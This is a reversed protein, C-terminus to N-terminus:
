QIVIKSHVVSKADKVEVVFMGKYPLYIQEEGQITKEYVVVGNITMIRVTSITKNSLHITFAGNSSPNPYVKVWDKGIEDEIGTILTAQFSYGTDKQLNSISIFAPSFSYNKLVPTITGSWGAIESASYFGNSDTSVPQTFGNMSVGSVGNGLSDTVTGSVVYGNGLVQYKIYFAKIMFHNTMEFASVQVSDLFVTTTSVPAVQLKGNEISAHLTPPVVGLEISLYEAPLYDDTLNSKLDLLPFAQTGRYIPQVAFDTLQPYQNSKVIRLQITVTASGGNSDTIEVKLSDTLSLPFESYAFVSISGNSVSLYVDKKALRNADNSDLNISLSNWEDLDDSVFYQMYTVADYLFLSDCNEECKFAEMHLYVPPIYSIVPPTNVLSAVEVVIKTITTNGFEDTTSLRLTDRGVWKSDAVYMTYSMRGYSDRVGKVSLNTAGSYTWVLDKSPTFDDTAEAYLVANKDQRFRINTLVNVVPPLDNGIVRIEESENKPQPMDIYALGEIDINGPLQPHTVECFYIGGDTQPDFNSFSLTPLSTTTYVEKPANLGASKKKYWTYVSGDLHTFNTIPISQSVGASPKFTQTVGVKKQPTFHLISVMYDKRSKYLSAIDSITFNNGELYMAEAVSPYEVVIPGSLFNNELHLSMKKSASKFWQQPVGGRIQNKALNISTLKPPLSQILVNPITTFQNESFNVDILDTMSSLSFSIDTLKNQAFNLSQLKTLKSLSAPLSAIINHEVSLQTINTLDSVSEPLTSLQNWDLKIEKLNSLSGIVGPLSSINNKDLYLQELTKLNSIASSVTTFNTCYSVDLRKLHPLSYVSVPLEKINPNMSISLYELNTLNGVEEPLHEFLCYGLALFNIKTLKGISAPIVRVPMGSIAALYFSNLSDLENLIEICAPLADNKPNGDLVSDIYNYLSIGVVRDSHNSLVIGKWQSTPKNKWTLPWGAKEMEQQFRALILSDQPVLSRKQAFVTVNGTFLFLIFIIPLIFHVPKLLQNIYLKRM